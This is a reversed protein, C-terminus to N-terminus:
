QGLRTAYRAYRFGQPDVLYKGGDSHSLIHVKGHHGEYYSTTHIPGGHLIPLNQIHERAELPLTQLSTVGVDKWRAQKADWDIVERGKGHAFYNQADKIQKVTRGRTDWAKKVGESTGYAQIELTTTLKM